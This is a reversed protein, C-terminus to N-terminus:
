IQAYGRRRTAMFIVTTIIGFAAGMSLFVVFANFMGELDVPSRYWNCKAPDDLRFCQLTFQALKNVYDQAGQETTFVALVTSPFCNTGKLMIGGAVPYCPTYIKNVKCYSKHITAVSTCTAPQLHSNFNANSIFGGFCGMGTIMCIISSITFVWFLVNAAM